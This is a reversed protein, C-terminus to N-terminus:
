AEVAAAVANSVRRLLAGGEVMQNTLCVCSVGSVPDAWAVTGTAGVHGFTSASVQEGFFSWVRSDRLAWGIGWPSELHAPNQNSVMATAAAPSFVRTNGCLGGNLLCQLLIALDPGTSHMGGWPCGFDRWYPSNQGWRVAEPAQQMSPSCWVLDEIARGQLGLFSNSMGLPAFIEQEEFDRLRMGTIREVIEAALLIGKSQYRFRSHPRFLLRTHIAGNVFRAMPAHAQRLHTNQPLMDPMGSIHSLIDRLRIKAKDWGVFEPIHLQVPDDLSVLGRDVLLMMACATVPKTISALLFISDADVTRGGPEPRQVGFGQSHVLRGHRAVTLSAASIHNADLAGNLLSAARELGTTSLGADAATGPTLSLPAPSM